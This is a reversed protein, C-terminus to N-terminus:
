PLPRPRAGHARGIPTVGAPDCSRIAGRDRRRAARATRALPAEHRVAIMEAAISIAIEEPTEAGIDLGIPARVERLAEKPTGLEQARALVTVIKRRSGILGVYAAGRGVAHRVASLDTKHCRTVVAVFSGPPIEPLGSAFEREARVRRVGAPYRSAELYDARDEVVTVAFGLRAALGAVERGVHGG